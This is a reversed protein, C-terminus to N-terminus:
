NKRTGWVNQATSYVLTRGDELIIIYTILQYTTPIVMVNAVVGDLLGRHGDFEPWIRDGKRLSEVPIMTPMSMPDEQPEPTAETEASPAGGELYARLRDGDYLGPFDDDPDIAPLVDPTVDEHTWQVKRTQPDVAGIDITAGRRLFEAGDRVVDDFSHLAKTGSPGGDPYRYRLKHDLTQGKKPM